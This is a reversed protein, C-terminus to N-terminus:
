GVRGQEQTVEELARYLRGRAGSGESITSHRKYLLASRQGM